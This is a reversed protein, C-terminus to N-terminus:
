LNLIRGEARGVVAVVRAVREWGRTGSTSSPGREITRATTGVFRTATTTAAAGAASATAATATAAATATTTGVTNRAM